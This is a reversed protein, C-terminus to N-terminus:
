HRENRVLDWLKQEVVELRTTIDSLLKDHAKLTARMGGWVVLGTAVPSAIAFFLALQELSM